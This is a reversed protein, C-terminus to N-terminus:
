MKVRQLRDASLFNKEEQLLWIAAQKHIFKEEGYIKIIFFSRAKSSDISDYIRVGKFTKKSINSLTDLTTDDDVVEDGGDGEIAEQEQENEGEDDEEEPQAESQSSTKLIRSRNLKERIHCSLEEISLANRFDSPHFSSFLQKADDFARLVTDILLAESLGNHSAIAPSSLNGQQKHHRPFSLHAGSLGQTNTDCRISQLLSVKEARQLFQYVSFNTVSSFTGSMSRAIRFTNEFTQSNFDYIRLVEEKARGQIVLLALYVLTHANIEVSLYCPRTIFFKDNKSSSYTRDIWVYWRRFVFVSLWAFYVREVFNTSKEIYALRVARIMQLSSLLNMQQRDSKTSM